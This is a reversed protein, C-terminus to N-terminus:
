AASKGNKIRTKNQWKRFKIVWRYKKTESKTIIIIIIIILLLMRIMKVKDQSNSPLELSYLYLM